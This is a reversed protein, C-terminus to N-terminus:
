VAMLPEPSFAPNASRHPSTPRLDPTVDGTRRDGCRRIADCRRVNPASVSSSRTHSGALHRVLRRHAEGRIRSGRRRCRSRRPPTPMAPLRGGPSDRDALTCPAASRGPRSRRGSGLPIPTRGTGPGRNRRGAPCCRRTPNTCGPRCGGRVPHSRAWRWRSGGRCNRRASGRGNGSAGPARLRHAEAGLPRPRGWRRAPRRSSACLARTWSHRGPAGDSPPCPCSAARRACGSAVLDGRAWQDEPLRKKGALLGVIFEGAPLDVVERRVM